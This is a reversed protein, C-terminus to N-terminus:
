PSEVRRLFHDQCPSAEDQLSEEAGGGRGAPTAKACERAGPSRLPSLAWTAGPDEGAEVWGASDRREAGGLRLSVAVPLSPAGSM